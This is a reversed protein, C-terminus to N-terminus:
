QRATKIRIYFHVSALIITIGFLALQAVQQTKSRRPDMLLGINSSMIAGPLWYDKAIVAGIRILGSLRYLSSEM